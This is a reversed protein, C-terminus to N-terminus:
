SVHTKRRQGRPHRKLGLRLMGNEIKVDVSETDVDGPIMLSRSLSRRDNKGSAILVCDRLSVEIEDSTYGPVPVEVEYGDETRTVGYEFGCSAHLYQFPYFGALFTPWPGLQGMRTRLTQDSRALAASV